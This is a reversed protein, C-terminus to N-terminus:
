NRCQWRNDNRFLEVIDEPVNGRQRDSGTLNVLITQHRNFNPQKSKKLIGAVAAAASYCIDINELSLVLGRAKRIDTESVSVFDGHSELVISRVFPYVRSPDGRLIAKAIGSPNPVIHHQKIKESGEQWARVMPSCTDQQVCLLQPPRKSIGMEIFEKAAKYVGFVGMASSVAQVYWDIPKNIQEVAELWALKLGERRGLNFFGRESTYDHEKAFQAAANFAEAFSAGHLIYHTIQSNSIYNVRDRFKDGTFLSMSLGPINTILEAYATSSNGTSSTCFHRVGSEYLYPLSVAAMRYKTTGTPQSTENKFYLNPLGCKEGLETAHLTQTMSASKPLLRPDKVPIIDLYREYPNDSDYLKAKKYNFFVETM